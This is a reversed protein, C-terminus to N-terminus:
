INSNLIDVGGGEEAVGRRDSERRPLPGGSTYMRVPQMYSYMQLYTIPRQSAHYLDSYM